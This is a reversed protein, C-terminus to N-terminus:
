AKEKFYQNCGIASISILVLISGVFSMWTLREDLFFAGLLITVPVNISRVVLGLGPRVVQMGRFIFSQTLCGICAAFLVVATGFKNEFLLVAEEKTVMFFSLIVGMIGLSLNNLIYNVRTGMKRVLTYITSSFFAVMLAALAGIASKGGEAVSPQAVLTVGTVNVFLILFDTMSMKDNLFIIALVSSISPALAQITIVNGVPILSLAIGATYLALAGLTGIFFIRIYISRPLKLISWLNFISIHSVCIVVFTISVIFCSLSVPVKLFAVAIHLSFARLSQLIASFFVFLYATFPSINSSSRRRSEDNSVNISESGHLLHTRECTRRDHVQKTSM